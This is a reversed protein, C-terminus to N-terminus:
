HDYVSTTLADIDNTAADADTLQYVGYGVRAVRGAKVLKCIRNRTTGAPTALPATAMYRVIREIRATQVARLFHLILVATSMHGPGRPNRM